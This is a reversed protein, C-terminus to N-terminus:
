SFPKMCFYFLNKDIITYNCKLINHAIWAVTERHYFFVHTIENKYHWRSFEIDDPILTTRCYLRGGKALLAELQSFTKAPEYFHEIVECSVIFDYSRELVVTDPHFYPDYLTMHFGQLELMKSVVPGPGAGFDLGRDERKQRSTILEVLPQVFKRYNPDEVDNNHMEYEAREKSPDPHNEKSVFIGKCTPCFGYPAPRKAIPQLKISPHGCLPCDQMDQM